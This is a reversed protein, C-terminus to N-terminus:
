HKEKNKENTDTGQVRAGELLSIIHLILNPYKSFRVTHYIAGSHKTTM